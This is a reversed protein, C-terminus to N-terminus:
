VYAVNCPMVSGSVINQRKKALASGFKTPIATMNQRILDSTPGSIYSLLAGYMEPMLHQVVQAAHSPEMSQVIRATGKLDQIMLEEIVGGAAMPHMNVVTATVLDSAQQRLITAAVQLAAM